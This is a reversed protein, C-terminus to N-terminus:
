EDLEVLFAVTGYVSRYYDKTQRSAWIDVMRVAMFRENNPICEPKDNPYNQDMSGMYKVEGTVYSYLELKKDHPIASIEYALVLNRFKHVKYLKEIRFSDFNHGDFECDISFITDTDM